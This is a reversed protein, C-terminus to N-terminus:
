VSFLLEAVFQPVFHPYVGRGVGSPPDTKISRGLLRLLLRVLPSSVCPLHRGASGCQCLLAGVLFTSGDLETCLGQFFNHFPFMELAHVETGYAVWKAAALLPDKTVVWCGFYERAFTSAPM